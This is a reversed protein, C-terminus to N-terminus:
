TLMAELWEEAAERLQEGVSSLSIQRGTHLPSDVVRHQHDRGASSHSVTEERPGLQRRSVDRSQLVFFKAKPIVWETM